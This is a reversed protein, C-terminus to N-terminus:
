ASHFEKCGYDSGVSIKGWLVILDTPTKLNWHYRSNIGMQAPLMWGTMSHTM